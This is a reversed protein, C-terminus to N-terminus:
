RWIAPSDGKSDCKLTKDELAYVFFFQCHLLAGADNKNSKTAWCYPMNEVGFM